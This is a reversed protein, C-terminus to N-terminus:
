PTSLIESGQENVGEAAGEIPLQSGQRLRSTSELSVGQGVGALAWLKITQFPPDIHRSRDLPWIWLAQHSIKDGFSM